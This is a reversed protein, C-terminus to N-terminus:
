LTAWRCDVDARAQHVGSLAAGTRGIHVLRQCGDQSHRLRAHLRQSALDHVPVTVAHHADQGHRAGDAVVVQAGENDRLRLYM